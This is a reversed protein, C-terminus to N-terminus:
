IGYKGGTKMFIVSLVTREGSGTCDVGTVELVGGVDSYTMSTGYQNTVEDMDPDNSTDPEWLKLKNDDYNLVIDATTLSDDDIKV